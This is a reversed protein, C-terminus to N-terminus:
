LSHAALWKLLSNLDGEQTKHTHNRELSSKYIPDYYSLLLKEIWVQHAEHKDHFISDLCADSLDTKIERYRETGLKKQINSLANILLNFHQSRDISPNKLPLTIYDEFINQVRQQLPVQIVFVPSSKIKNHLSIPLARRGVLRSEDEVLVKSPGKNKIKMLELSLQNEFNIQTPQEGRIGGFASGLHNAIEELDLVTHQEKLTKLIRTKGSGTAGSLVLFDIQSIHSELMELLFHRLAKYGGEVKPVHVGAEKLWEQTIRSRMGGRFCYLVGNPNQQHWNIWKQMKAQKNEGTVLEHGLVIAAEQGHQKYCTGVAAREESNLIPINHAQPISGEKFEIEARVDLLPTNRLLLDAFHSASIDNM